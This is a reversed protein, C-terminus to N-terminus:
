CPQIAGNWQLVQEKIPQMGNWTWHELDKYKIWDSKIMFTLYISM